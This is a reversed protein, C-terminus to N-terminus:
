GGFGSATWAEDAATGNSNADTFGDAQVAYATIEIKVNEYSKLVSGDIDNKIAFSEFVIVDTKETVANQKKFYVDSVGDIELLEWGNNAMQKTIVNSSDEIGAIGNEIKVFLWCAESGATVHITPDKTYKHGPILKYTNVTVREAGEVPEGYVNVKSEDLTIEVKGVTMTNTVPATKYQLYALTGAVSASVLLVACLALLIANKIKKM